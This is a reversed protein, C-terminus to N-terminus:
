FPITCFYRKVWVQNRSFCTKIKPAKVSPVGVSKCTIAECFPESESEPIERKQPRGTKEGADILVNEKRPLFDCDNCAGCNKQNESRPIM